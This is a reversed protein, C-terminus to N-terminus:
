TSTLNYEVKMRVIGDEGPGKPHPDLYWPSGDPISNLESAVQRLRDIKCALDQGQRLLHDSLERLLDAWIFHHARVNVDCGKPPHNLLHGMGSIHSVGQEADLFGGSDCHM